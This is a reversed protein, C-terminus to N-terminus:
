VLDDERTVDYIRHGPVEVDLADGDRAACRFGIAELLESMRTVPMPAGLVQEARKRRLTIKRREPAPEAVEPAVAEVTGGAIAVILEACRVAARRQLDPDVGREFRYSADTSMGLARRGNRVTRPDFLACELLVNTTADTVETDEGGMIGALAVAREADAI